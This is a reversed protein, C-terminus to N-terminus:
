GTNERVQERKITRRERETKGGWIGGLGYKLAYILCEGRVECEACVRRQAGSVRGGKGPFWAEPDTGICNARDMWETDNLADLLSLRLRAESNAPLKM